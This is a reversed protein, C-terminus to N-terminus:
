KLNAIQKTKPYINNFLVIKHKMKNICTFCCWVFDFHSFQSLRPYFPSSQNLWRDIFRSLVQYISSVLGLMSSHWFVKLDILFPILRDLFPSSQDLARLNFSLVCLGISYPVIVCKSWDLPTFSSVDGKNKCKIILRSRQILALIIGLGILFHKM